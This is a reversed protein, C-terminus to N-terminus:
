YNKRLNIIENINDPNLVGFPAREDIEISRPCIVNFSFRDNALYYSLDLEFFLSAILVENNSMTWFSQGVHFEFDVNGYILNKEENIFNDNQLLEQIRNKDFLGDVSSATNQRLWNMLRGDFDDRNDDSLNVKVVIPDSGNALYFIAPGELLAHNYADQLDKLLAQLPISTDLAVYVFRYTQKSTPVDDQASMPMSFGMTLCLFALIFFSRKM